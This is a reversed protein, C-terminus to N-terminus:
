QVKSLTGYRKRKKVQRKIAQYMSRKCQQALIIQGTARQMYLKDDSLFKYRREVLRRIQKALSGRM